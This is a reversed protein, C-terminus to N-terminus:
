QLNLYTYSDIDAVPNDPGLTIIKWKNATSDWSVLSDYGDVTEGLQYWEGTMPITALSELIEVKNIVKAYM